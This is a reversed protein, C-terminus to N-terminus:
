KISRKAREMNVNEVNQKRAIQLRDCELKLTSKNVCESLIVRSVKKKILSNHSQKDIRNSGSIAAIKIARNKGRKFYQINCFM